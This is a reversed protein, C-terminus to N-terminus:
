PKLSIKRVPTTLAKIPEWGRDNIRARITTYPLNLEECWQTLSQRKGDHEIYICSRRNNQQEKTSAWRCNNPEYNGNSDIRDISYGEPCNGMDAYFAEFSNRWKDCVTIGRGGYRMYDSRKKFYCRNKMNTWIRFEKSNTKGHSLNLKSAREAKACGCSIVLGKRLEYGSVITETNCQCRCLWRAQKPAPVRNLVTLKGIVQGTM